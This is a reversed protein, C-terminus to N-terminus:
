INNIEIKIEKEFKRKFFFILKKYNSKNNQLFVELFMKIEFSGTDENYYGLIFTVLNYYEKQYYFSTLIQM